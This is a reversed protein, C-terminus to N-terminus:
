LLIMGLTWPIPWLTLFAVAGSLCFNVFTSAQILIVQLLSNIGVVDILVTKPDIIKLSEDSMFDLFEKMETITQISQLRASRGSTVLRSIAAWEQMFSNFCQNVYYRARDLDDQVIFLLSLTECHYGELLAKHQQHRLANDMFRLLDPDHRQGVCQKLKCRLLYPLTVEQQYVDDDWIYEMSQKEELLFKEIDTWRLLRSCCSLISAEWLDEEEQVPHGENWDENYAEKFKLYATLYDGRGEASLAENTLDKTGIESKFIGQVADYDNISKYLKALEIWCSTMEPSAPVETRMRKAPREVVTSTGKLLQKELLQIGVGQQHSAVSSMSVAAPELSLNQIFACVDQIAGIFPPFYQVSMDLVANLQEQLTKHTEEASAEVLSEDIGSYVGQFVAVFLLRAMRNDRQALAQLPRILESHKIQIDPLDGDRYKRYMVVHADRSAKQQQMRERRARKKREELQAYYRSSAVRDKVFRRKLKLVGQKQTEVSQSGDIADSPRLRETGFAEGVPRGPLRRQLTGFLLTSQTQSDPGGGVSFSIGQSQTAPQLWDYSEEQQTPTFDMPQQTARIGSAMSQTMDSQSQTAAFLPVMLLHRKQWSLDISKDEFKCESLPYDFMNRSYDPSRSTLELMLNTSYSLFSSETQPSYMVALLQALRNVTGVSLRAEQSWFAYIELRLTENEDALGKLLQTKVSSLMETGQKDCTIDEQGHLSNFLWILIQYLEKRCLVSAHSALLLVDPVIAKLESLTLNKLMSHVICLAVLQTGGDRHCLMGSFGKAKLEVYLNPIETARSYIIELCKRRFDGHVNPLLFLIKNVFRDSFEPYHEQILHLCTIFRDIGAAQGTSTFSSLTKTVEDHLTSEKVSEHDYLHSMTMGIAAAAGGYVDQYKFRLSQALSKFISDKDIGPDNFPCLDNAIFIGLFQIGICNSIDSPNTGRLNEYIMRSPVSLSGKWSEVLCKIVELNNRLVARTNHSCNMMLFELLQSALYQDELKTPAWSLMTVVVDIIFYNLGSTGLVGSVILEVLPILWFKAYPQFVKPRNIIVRALFLRVNVATTSDTMKKHLCAMWPPMASAVAGEDYSPTIKNYVMHDLLHLVVPMSEHQNLEDQEMVEQTVFFESEVHGETGTEPGPQSDQSAIQFIERSILLANSNSIGTM